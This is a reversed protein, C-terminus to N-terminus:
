EVLDTNMFQNYGCIEQSNQILNIFVCLGFYGVYRLKHHKQLYNKIQIKEM